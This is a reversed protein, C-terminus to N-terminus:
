SGDIMDYEGPVALQNLQIHVHDGGDTTYAGIQHDIRDSLLRIEAVPTVGAIVEDGESVKMEDIHILVCDVEPWGDPQIHIEYDEHEGYLWYTRVGIVTGSVPAYVVTGPAAGVDVATDPEGTRSSRWMRLVEADLVTTSNSAQTTRPTGGNEAAATMDADPLSTGMSLASTGSAQHFGIETLAEVPVPLRMPLSRYTAFIPTPERDVASTEQAVVASVSESGSGRAANWAVLLGTVLIAAVVAIMFDTRTKRKRAAQRRLERDRLAVGVSASPTVIPGDARRPPTTNIRRVTRNRRRPRYPRSDRRSTPDANQSMDKTPSSPDIAFRLIAHQEDTIRPM